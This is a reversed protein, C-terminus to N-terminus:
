CNLGLKQGFLMPVAGIRGLQVGRQYGGTEHGNLVEGDIIIITISL